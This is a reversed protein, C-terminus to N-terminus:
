GSWTGAPRPPARASRARGSLAGGSGDPARSSVAAWLRGRAPARRTGRPPRRGRPCSGRPSSGNRDPRRSEGRSPRGAPRGALLTVHRRDEWRTSAYKGKPTSASPGPRPPVRHRANTGAGGQRMGLPYRFCMGGQLLGPVAGRERPDGVRRPAPPRQRQGGDVAARPAAPPRRQEGGPVDVRPGAPATRRGM